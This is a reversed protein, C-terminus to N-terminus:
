LAALCARCFPKRAIFYATWLFSGNISGLSSCCSPSTNYTIIKSTIAVSFIYHSTKNCTIKLYYTGTPFSTMNFSNTTYASTNKSVSLYNTWKTWSSGDTSYALTDVNANNCTAVLTVATVGSYVGKTRIYGCPNSADANYLQISTKSAYSQGGNNRGGIQWKSNVASSVIITDTVTANDSGINRYVAYLTVSSMPRYISGSALLTPMTTTESCSSTAWGAFTWGASSCGGSPSASPLTVTGGAVSPKTSATGCTGSGANYTVTFKTTVKFLYVSVGTSGNYWRIKYSSSSNSRLNFATNASRLIQGSANLKLNNSTGNDYAVFNGSTTAPAMTGADCTLYFGDKDGHATFFAADNLNTTVLGWSSSVETTLYYGNYATAIVYIDGDTISTAASNSIDSTTIGWANVVGVTLLIALLSCLKLMASRRDFSPRVVTLRCDYGVDNSQSASFLGRIKSFHTLLNKM